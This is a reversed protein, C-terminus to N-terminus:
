REVSRIFAWASGAALVSYAAAATSVPVALVAVSAIYSWVVFSEIWITARLVRMKKQSFASIFIQQAGLILMVVAWTSQDALSLMYIYLNGVDFTPSFSLVLWWGISISGFCIEASKTETKFMIDHMLIRAYDLCLRLYKKLGTHKINSIPPM